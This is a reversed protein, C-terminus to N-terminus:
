LSAVRLLGVGGGHFTVFKSCPALWGVVTSPLLSRAAIEHVAVFFCGCCLVVCCLVVCCVVVCCLVVLRLVNCNV